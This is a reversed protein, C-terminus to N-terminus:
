ITRNVAVPEAVPSYAGQTVTKPNAYTLPKQTEERVAGIIGQVLKQTAIMAVQLARANREVAAELKKGAHRLANRTEEPLSEILGTQTALSKIDATYDLTLRQKRRLLEAYDARDRREILSVEDELLLSLEDIVGILHTLAATPPSQLATTM